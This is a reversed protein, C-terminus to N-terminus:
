HTLLKFIEELSAEQTQLAQINLGKALAFNLIGKKVESMENSKIVLTHKDIQEYDFKSFFTDSLLATIAEEFVVRV